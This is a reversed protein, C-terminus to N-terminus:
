RGGLQLAVQAGHCVTAVTLSLLAWRLWRVARRRREDM